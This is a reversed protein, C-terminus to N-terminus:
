LLFFCQPIKLLSFFHRMMVCVCVRMDDGGVNSCLNKTFLFFFTYDLSVKLICEDHSVGDNPKSRACVCVCPLLLQVNKHQMFQITKKEGAYLQFAAAAATGENRIHFIM